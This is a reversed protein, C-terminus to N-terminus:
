TTSAGQVAANDDAPLLMIPRGLRRASGVSGPLPLESGAVNEFMGQPWVLPSAARDFRDRFPELHRTLGCLECRVNWSVLVSISQRFRRAPIKSLPGAPDSHKSPALSIGGIAVALRSILPM